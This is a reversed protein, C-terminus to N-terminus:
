HISRSRVQEFVVYTAFALLVFQTVPGLGIANLSSVTISVMKVAQGLLACPEFHPVAARKAGRTPEVPM